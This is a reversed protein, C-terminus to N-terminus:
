SGNREVSSDKPFCGQLFVPTTQQVWDLHHVERLIGANDINSAEVGSPDTEGAWLAVGPVSDYNTLKKVLKFSQSSVNGWCGLCNHELIQHTSCLGPQRSCWYCSGSSGWRCRWGLSDLCRSMRRRWMCTCEILPIMAIRLSPIYHKQELAGRIDAHDAKVENISCNTFRWTDSRGDLKQDKIFDCRNEVCKSKTDYEYVAVTSSWSWISLLCFTSWWMM